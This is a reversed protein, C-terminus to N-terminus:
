VLQVHLKEYAVETGSNRDAVTVQDIVEYKETGVQVDIATDM